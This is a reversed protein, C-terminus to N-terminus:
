ACIVIFLNIIIILLLMLLPFIVAIVIICVNDSTMKLIFVRKEVNRGLLILGRLMIIVSFSRTTIRNALIM